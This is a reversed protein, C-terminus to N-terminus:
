SQQERDFFSDDVLVWLDRDRREGYADRYWQVYLARGVRFARWGETCDWGRWSRAVGLDEADDAVGDPDIRGEAIFDEEDPCVQGHLDDAAEQVESMRVRVDELAEAATVVDGADLSESDDLDELATAFAAAAEELGRRADDYIEREVAWEESAWTGHDQMWVHRDWDELFGQISRKIKEQDRM